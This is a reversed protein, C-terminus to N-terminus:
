MDRLVHRNKMVYSIGSVVTALLTLAIFIRGLVPYSFPTWDYLPAIFAFLPERSALLLLLYIATSIQLITKQKGLSDAALVAGEASSAILRLGTVLFERTLVIVVAWDPFLGKTSLMVFASCMLVKDALPDMLKGFSTIQGRSRAIAGDLWDTISAAIFLLLAASNSWSLELAMAAVFVLTMILRAVTLQNPLNM